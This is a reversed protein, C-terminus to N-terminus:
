QAKELKGSVNMKFTRGDQTKADVKLTLTTGDDKLEMTGSKFWTGATSHGIEGADKANYHHIDYKYGSESTSNIEFDFPTSANYKGLDVKKGKCASSINLFAHCPINEVTFDIDVHYGPAGGLHHNSEMYVCYNCNADVTANGFTVSNTVPEEKTCSVAMFAALCLLTAIRKM